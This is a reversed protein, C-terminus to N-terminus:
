VAFLSHGMVSHVRLFQHDQWVKKQEALSCIEEFAQFSDFRRIEDKEM